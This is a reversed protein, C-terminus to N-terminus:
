QNKNKNGHRKLIQKADTMEYTRKRSNEHAECNLIELRRLLLGRLTHISTLSDSLAVNYFSILIARNSRSVLYDNVLLSETDFTRSVLMIVGKRSKCDRNKLLGFLMDYRIMIHPWISPCVTPVGTMCVVVCLKHKHSVITDKVSLEQRGPTM